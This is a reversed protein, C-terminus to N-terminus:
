SAREDDAILAGLVGQLLQRKAKETLRGDSEFISPSSGIEIHQGTVTAGFESLLQKLAAQGRLGGAGRPSMGILLIQCGSLAADESSSAQRLWMLANRLKASYAGTYEDSSMVIFTSGLLQDALRIAEQPTDAGPAFTPLEPNALDVLATQFSGRSRQDIFSKAASALRWNTSDKKSSASIFTITRM